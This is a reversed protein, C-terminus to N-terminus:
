FQRLRATVAQPEPQAASFELRTLLARYDEEAGNRDGRMARFQARNSLAEGFYPELRLLETLVRDADRMRGQFALDVALANANKIAVYRAPTDIYESPMSTDRGWWRRAEAALQGMSFIYIGALLAATGTAMRGPWAQPRVPISATQRCGAWLLLMHMGLAAAVCVAGAAPRAYRPTAGMVAHLSFCAIMLAVVGAGRPLPRRWVLPLALLLLLWQERWLIPLRRFINIIFPKPERRINKLSEKLFIHPRTLDPAKQARSLFDRHRQSVLLQSMHPNDLLGISAGWLNLSAAGNEFPIFSRFLVANRLTWPLLLLYSCLICVTLTRLRAKWGCAPFLLGFYLPLLVLTSRCSLTMGLMAASPLLGLGIKRRRASRIWACLSLTVLLGFFTEVMPARVQAVAPNFFAYLVAALSGCFGGGLMAAAVYVVVITSWDLLAQALRLPAIGPSARRLLSIASPYLPMRFATPIWGPYPRYQGTEAVQVGIGYYEWDDNWFENMGDAVGAAGLRLLGGFFLAGWLLSHAILRAHRANLMNRRSVGLRVRADSAHDGVFFRWTAVHLTEVLWMTHRHDYDAHPKATVSM